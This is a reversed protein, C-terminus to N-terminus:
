KDDELLEKMRNDLKQDIQRAELQFEEESLFEMNNILDASQMRLNVVVRDSNIKQLLERNM